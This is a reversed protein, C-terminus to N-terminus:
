LHSIRAFSRSRHAVWALCVSSNMCAGAGGSVLFSGDNTEVIALPGITAHSQEIGAAFVAGVFPSLVQQFESAQHPIPTSPVLQQALQFYPNLAPTPAPEPPIGFNPATTGNVTPLTGLNSAADDDAAYSQFPAAERNGAHDTALVLFEYARGVQGSYVLQGTTDALQRQWIKFAQGDTSVYITVSKVDSGNADDAANWAVLYDNGACARRQSTSLIAPTSCNRRRYRTTRRRTTSCSAPM